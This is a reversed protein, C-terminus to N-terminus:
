ALIILYYCACVVPSRFYASMVINKKRKLENQKLKCSGTTQHVKFKVWTGFGWVPLTTTAMAINLM